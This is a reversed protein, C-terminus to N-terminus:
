LREECWRILLEVEEAHLDTMVYRHGDDLTFTLSHMQGFGLGGRVYSTVDDPRIDHLWKDTDRRSVELEYRSVKAVRWANSFWGPCFSIRRLEGYRHDRDERRREAAEDEEREKAEQREAERAEARDHQELHDIAGRAVYQGPGYAESQFMDSDALSVFDAGYEEALAALQGQLAPIHMSGGSGIVTGVPADAVDKARELCVRFASICEDVYGAVHTEFEENTIKASV